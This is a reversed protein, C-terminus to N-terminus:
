TACSLEKHAQTAAESTDETVEEEVEINQQEVAINQQEVAINQPETTINESSMSYFTSDSDEDWDAWSRSIKDKRKVVNELAKLSKEAICGETNERQLITIKPEPMVWKVAYAPVKLQYRIGGYLMERMVIDDAM